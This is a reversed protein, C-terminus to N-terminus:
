GPLARSCRDSLRVRLRRVRLLGREVSEEDNRGGVKARVGVSVGLM